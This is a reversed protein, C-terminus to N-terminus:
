FIAEWVAYNHGSTILKWEKQGVDVGDGNPSWNAPGIKMAIKKDIVASYLENYAKRINVESKYNIGFRRRIDVLELVQKKLNQDFYIHDYFVCPTGCHTLIYCYGEGLHEWPFPWHRLTSGTDHNELFTIARSPWIGLVGPPKGKGDILRWYERRSVAEQLIGKTTFDFAAATAGTADCWDVTRQRHVDQNYNLVGDTYSCTDWYEGFAMEPVTANIYEGVYRGDYGKVFDFRWGDFGISNRLWRLWETLDKRVREQSHDLNPAAAYDEAKKWSGTGGFAPNNATIVSQDWALRGGFRNWKGDGGQYHACRHNIVIDAICKIGLEHFVSIMDRLEAESGYKSNLDYLDRPLYGASSNLDYLDRPLYGQPCLVASSNLDYLDRPLYGQPRLVAYCLLVNSNLDYLDRPLYGQSSVSDTPPPLWVATFGWDAIEKAQALLKKYWPEKCSEWNFAQLVIEYGNGAAPGTTKVPPPQFFDPIRPAQQAEPLPAELLKRRSVLIAEMAAMRRELLSSAEARESQKAALAAVDAANALMALIDREVSVLRTAASAMENAASELAAADGESAIATVQSDDEDMTAIGFIAPKSSRSSSSLVALLQQKIPEWDSEPIQNGDPSTVRFVDCICGDVSSNIMASAVSLSCASLVSTVQTLLATENRGNLTIVTCQPDEDNDFSVSAERAGGGGSSSSGSSTSRASETAPAAASLRVMSRSSAAAPNASQLGPRHRVLASRRHHTQQQFLKSPSCDHKPSAIAQAALADM